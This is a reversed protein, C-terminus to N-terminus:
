PPELEREERRAREERNLRDAILQIAGKDKSAIVEGSAADKYVVTSTGRVLYYWGAFLHPHYLGKPPRKTKM